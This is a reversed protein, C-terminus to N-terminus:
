GFEDADALEPQKAAPAGVVTSGTSPASAPQAGSPAAQKQGESAKAEFVLDGRAAWSVIEFKPRYNTSTKEGSGSKIPVTTKLVVVPLKSPNDGKAAQYALYLEEIGSLFAKAVSALERIPKEGGCEKSLKLMLRVGNKHNQSPRGPLAVGMPVLSFDPAGGTNFNMWGVEVNELDLIAKFTSTIDIDENTYQGGVDVRDRRFMRGARSDYKVIPLFDGGSSAETSFGFVSM